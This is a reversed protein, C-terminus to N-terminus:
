SARPMAHRLFAGPFGAARAAARGFGRIVNVCSFEVTDPVGGDQMANRWDAAAKECESKTVVRTATIGSGKQDGDCAACKGSCLAFIPSFDYTKQAGDGCGTLAVATTAAAFRACLKTTM